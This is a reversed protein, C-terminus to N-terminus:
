SNHIYFYYKNYKFIHPTEGLEGGFIRAQKSQSM